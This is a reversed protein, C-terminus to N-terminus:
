RVGLRDLVHDTHMDSAIGPDPAPPSLWRCKCRSHWWGNRQELEVVHSTRKAKGM